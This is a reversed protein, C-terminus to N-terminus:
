KKQMVLLIEQKELLSLYADIHYDTCLTARFSEKCYKCGCHWRRGIFKLSHKLLKLDELVADTPSEYAIRLQISAVKYVLHVLFPSAVDCMEEAVEDTKFISVMRLTAESILVSEASRHAGPSQPQKDCFYDDLAIIGSRQTTLSKDSLTPFLKVQLM